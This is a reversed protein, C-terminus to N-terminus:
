KKEEYTLSICSTFTSLNSSDKYKYDFYASENPALNGVNLCTTTPAFSLAGRERSILQEVLAHEVDNVILKVNHVYDCSTNTIRIQEHILQTLPDYTKQIIPTIELHSM